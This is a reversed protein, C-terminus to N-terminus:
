AACTQPEEPTAKKGISKGALRFTLLLLLLGVLAFSILGIAEHAWAPAEILGAELYFLAAARMANALLIAGFGTIALLLTRGTSLNLVMAMAFTLLMGSWLM